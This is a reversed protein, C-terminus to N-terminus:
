GYFWYCVFISAIIGAIDAVLCCSLVHRGKKIGVAGLYIALIYFTTETCENFIASLRGSFSDVGNHQMSEIMLAKAGSGSFPKMMATPLAEIFRTDGNFFSVFQAIVSIFLDFIGSSRLLGIAMLMAVLYPILTISQKFGEKAGEIFEDYVAVGKVGAVLVFSFIMLLLLGNGAQTSISSLEQASLTLLFSIVGFFSALIAGLYLLLLSNILPLKQAIVVCILAVITSCFSALLIPIFIDAPAIAGMQSRLLFVNVPVIALSSCKLALFVIQAETITDKKPNLAQLDEMAKIGMPTSANYLSLMNATLAVTVTGFAPHNKPVEPMLRSLIPQSAKSLLTILGAKEALKMLGMWLTMVGVLGIAIEASTKASKFIGDVARSLVDIEGLAFQYLIFIVSSVFFFFWVRNLM